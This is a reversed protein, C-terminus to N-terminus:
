KNCYLRMKIKKCVCVCVCLRHLKIKNIGCCIAFELTSIITKKTFFLLKLLSEDVINTRLMMTMEFTQRLM